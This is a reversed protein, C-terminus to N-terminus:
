KMRDKQGKTFSEKLYNKLINKYREEKEAKIKSKLKSIDSSNVTYISDQNIILNTLQKAIIRSNQYEFKATEHFLSINLGGYRTPLSLLIRENDFCIQGGTIAPILKQGITHELPLLLESIDPITHIFYTLKSRFGSVFAAYVSKPETEAIKPLLQLRDNLYTVLESVYKEKYLHDGTVAGLHRM